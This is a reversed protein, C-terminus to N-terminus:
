KMLLFQFVLAFFIRFLKMCSMLPIVRWNPHKVCYTHEICLNKCEFLAKFCCPHREANLLFHNFCNNGNVFDFNQPKFKMKVRLSPVIGNISYIGINQCLYIVTFTIFDPYCTGVQGSYSIVVKLIIWKKMKEFDIMEKNGQM